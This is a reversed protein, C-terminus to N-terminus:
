EAMYKAHDQSVCFGLAQVDNVDTLYEECNKLIDGVRRDNETYLKTLEKIEYKVM